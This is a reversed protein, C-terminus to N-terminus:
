DWKPELGGEDHTRTKLERGQSKFIVYPDQKGFYEVSRTLKAEVFTVCWDAPTNTKAQVM